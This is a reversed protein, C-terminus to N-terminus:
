KRDARDLEETPRYLEVVYIVEGDANLIPSLYSFWEGQEDSFRGFQSTKEELVKFFMGRERPVIFPEYIPGRWINIGFYFRGNRIKHIIWKPMQEAHRTDMIRSVAANIREYAESERDEPLRISKLDAISVTNIIARTLNASRRVSEAELDAKMVDRVWDGVVLASIVLLPIFLLLLKLFFPFRLGKPFALGRICLIAFVLLVLAAGSLLCTDTIRKARYTTVTAFDRNRIVLNKNALDFSLVEGSAEHTGVPGVLIDPFPYGETLPSITRVVHGERNFQVWTRNGTSAVTLYSPEERALSSFSLQDAALLDGKEFGAKGIERVRRGDVSYEIVRDTAGSSVFIHGEPGVCVGDWSSFVENTDGLQQVGSPVEGGSMSVNGASPVKWINRRGACNNVFYHEGENGVAYNIEPYSKPDKLLIRFIESPTKGLSHYERFRYGVFDGSGREYIYSQVVLGNRGAYVKRVMYYYEADDGEIRASGELVMPAQASVYELQLVTNNEKEVVYLVDGVKAYAIPNRFSRVVSYHLGAYVAILVALITLIVFAIIGPMRRPHPNDSM